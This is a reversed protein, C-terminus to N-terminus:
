YYENSCKYVKRVIGVKIILRNFILNLGYLYLLSYTNGFRGHNERLKKKTSFEAMKILYKLLEYVLFVRLEGLM